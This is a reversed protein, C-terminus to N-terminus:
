KIATLDDDLDPAPAPRHRMLAVARTPGADMTELRARLAAAGAEDGAAAACVARAAIHRPQASDVLREAARCAADADELGMRAVFMGYARDDMRGPDLTRARDLQALAAEHEGAVNLWTAVWVAALASDPRLRLADDAAQHMLATEGRLAHAAMLRMHANANDPNLARAAQAQALAEDLAAAGDGPAAAFHADVALDSLIVPLAVARAGADIADQACAATAARADPDPRARYDLFLFVCRMVPSIAGRRRYDAIVPGDGRFLNDARRRIEHPAAQAAGADLLAASAAVSGDSLAAVDLGLAGDAARVTVLYDEATPRPTPGADVVTYLAHRALLDRIAIAAARAAPDDDAAQVRMRLVDAPAAAPLGRMAAGVALAVVALGAAALGAWRLARRGVTPFARGAPRSRAEFRPRYGGKPVSIVLPDDAGDTAYYHALTQRLRNMEVRVISDAGPDFGEDRGLVDVGIAYAKLRDGRGALTEEVLHTLIRLPRSGEAAAGSAAIRALAERAAEPTTEPTEPAPQSM